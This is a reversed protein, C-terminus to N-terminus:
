EEERPKANAMRCLSWKLTSKQIVDALHWLNGLLRVEVGKEFLASIPNNIETVYLPSEAWQSVYYGAVEDQLYFNAPDFQYLYLKTQMARELWGHEIAVCHKHTPTLLRGIDEQTSSEGAYFAVRPCQRPTLFNPLRCEDIAWVLKVNKDLDDRTPTRPYFTTINLEESVHFLKM